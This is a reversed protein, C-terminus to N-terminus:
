DAGHRRGRHVDYGGGLMSLLVVPFTPSFAVIAIQALLAAVVLARRSSFPSQRKSTRSDQANSKGLGASEEACAKLHEEIAKVRQPGRLAMVQSRRSALERERWYARRRRELLRLLQFLLFGTFLAPVISFAGGMALEPISASLAVRWSESLGAISYSLWRVCVGVVPFLAAGVGVLQGTAVLIPQTPTLESAAM